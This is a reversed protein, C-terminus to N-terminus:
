KLRAKGTAADVVVTAKGGAPGNGSFEIYWDDGQRYARGRSWKRGDPLREMFREAIRTAAEFSLVGSGAQPAPAANAHLHVRSEEWTQVVVALARSELLQALAARDEESRQQFRYRLRAHFDDAFAQARALKAVTAPPLTAQAAPALLAALLAVWSPALRRTHM